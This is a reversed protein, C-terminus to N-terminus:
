RQGIPLTSAVDVWDVESMSCDVGWSDLLRKHSMGRLTVAEQLYVILLAPHLEAGVEIAVVTDILNNPPPYQPGSSIGCPVNRWIYVQNIGVL